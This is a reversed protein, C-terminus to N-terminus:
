HIHFNQLFNFKINCKGERDFVVGDAQAEDLIADIAEDDMPLAYRAESSNKAETNVNQGSQSINNISINGESIAAKLYAQGDTSDTIDKIKTIDYFCDGKEIM